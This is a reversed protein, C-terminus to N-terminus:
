KSQELEKQLQVLIASTRQRSARDTMAADIHIARFRSWLDSVERSNSERRLVILDHGVRQYRTMLTRDISKDVTPKAAKRVTRYPRATPQPAAVAPKSVVPAPESVIPAPESVIPAPEASEPASATAVQGPAPATAVQEPAPAPTAVQERWPASPAAPAVASTSKSGLQARAILVGLLVAAGGAAIGLVSRWSTRRWPMIPSLAEYEGAEVAPAAKIWEAEESVENAKALQAAVQASTPRVSPDGALMTMWLVELGPPIREFLEYGLLALAHVDDKPDPVKTDSGLNFSRSAEGAIEQTIGWDLLKVRPNREHDGSALGRDGSALPRDLVLVHALDLAGHTVGAAHAAVLVECIQLLTSVAVEPRLEGEAVVHDLTVGDLAERVIYPRGDSMTGIDFLALVGPHDFRQLDHMVRRLRDTYSGVALPPANIIELAAPEGTVANVVAYIAGIGRDHAQGDILRWRGICM